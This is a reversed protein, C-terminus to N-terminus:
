PPLWARVCVRAREGGEGEVCVCVCGLASARVRRVFVRKIACTCTRLCVRVGVGALGVRSHGGGLSPSPALAGRAVSLSISISLSLSLSVQLMPAGVLQRLCQHLMLGIQLSPPLRRVYVSVHEGQCLCFCATMPCLWVKRDDPLCKCSLSVSGRSGAMRSAHCDFLPSVFSPVSGRSGTM